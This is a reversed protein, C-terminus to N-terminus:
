GFVLFRPRFLWSYPAALLHRVMAFVVVVLYFFIYLGAPWASAHGVYIMTVTTLTVVMQDVMTDIISGRTSAEGKFRALPGDRVVHAFLLTFAAARSGWLFLPCFAIGSLLSLFTIHGARLGAASMLSLLPQLLRGRLSQSWEMFASEGHSYCTVKPTPRPAESAKTERTSMTCFEQSSWQASLPFRLPQFGMGPIGSGTNHYRVPGLLHDRFPLHSHGFYCDDVQDRWGHMTQDLYYAVNGVARNRPFYCRHVLGNLGTLDALDYLSASLWGRQRDRKWPRRLRELAAQAMRYNACDGHLFLSRDLRLWYKHSFLRPHRSSLEELSDRFMGLWDHNGYIYHVEARGLSDLLNTLWELAAAVTAQQSPYQSWRSDFTDGNM